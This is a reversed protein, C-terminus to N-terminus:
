DLYKAKGPQLGDVDAETEHKGDYNGELVKLLNDQSDMLWGLNARWGRENGSGNLFASANAKIFAKRIDEISFEELRSKIKKAKKKSIAISKPLKTCIENYLDAIEQIQPSIEATNDKYERKNINEKIINNTKNGKTRAQENQQVSPVNTSSSAAKERRVQGSKKGAESRVKSIRELHEISRDIGSKLFNFAINCETSLKEIEKGEIYDFLAMILQRFEHDSEILELAQRNDIFLPIYKVKERIAM